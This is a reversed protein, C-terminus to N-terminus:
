YIACVTQVLLRPMPVPGSPLAPASRSALMGPKQLKAAPKPPGPSLQGAASPAFGIPAAPIKLSGISLLGEAGDPLVRRGVAPAAFAPPALSQSRRVQRLPPDQEGIGCARGQGRCELKPLTEGEALGGPVKQVLNRVLPRALPMCTATPSTDASATDYFPMSGICFSLDSIADPCTPRFHPELRPSSKRLKPGEAAKRVHGTMVGASDDTLQGVSLPELLNPKSDAGAAAIIHDRVPLKARKTEILQRAKGEEGAAQLALSRVDQSLVSKDTGPVFFHPSMVENINRLYQQSTKEYIKAQMEALRRMRDMADKYLREFVGWNGRELFETLGAEAVADAAEQGFGKASMLSQMSLMKKRLEALAKDAASTEDALKRMAEAAKADAKRKAEQALSLQQELEAQLQRIREQWEDDLLKRMRELEGADVGGSSGETNVGITRIANGGLLAGLNWRPAAPFQVSHPSVEESAISTSVLTVVNGAWEALGALKDAGSSAPCKILESSLNNLETIVPALGNLALLQNHERESHLDLSLDANDPLASQLREVEPMEFRQIEAITEQLDSAFSTNAGGASIGQSINRLAQAMPDESVKDAVGSLSAVLLQEINKPLHWEAGPADDQVTDKPIKKRLDRLMQDKEAIRDLLEQRKVEKAKLEGMLPDVHETHYEALLADVDKQSFIKADEDEVTIGLQSQLQQQLKAESWREKIVDREIVATKREAESRALNDTNGQLQHQLRCRESDRDLLHVHYLSILSALQDLWQRLDAAVEMLQDQTYAQLLRPRDNQHPHQLVSVAHSIKRLAFEALEFHEDFESAWHSELCQVSRGGERAVWDLGSSTERHLISAHNARGVQERQRDVHERLRRLIDLQWQKSKDIEEEASERALGHEEASRKPSLGMHDFTDDQFTLWVEAWSRPKEHVEMGLLGVALRLVQQAPSANKPIDVEMGGPLVLQRSRKSAGKNDLEPKPEAFDYYGGTQAFGNRTVPKKTIADCGNEILVGDPSIECLIGPAKSLRSIPAIPRGDLSARRRSDM